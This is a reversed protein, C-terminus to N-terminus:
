KRSHMNDGTFNENIETMLICIKKTSIIIRCNKVHHRLSLGWEIVRENVWAIVRNGYIHTPFYKM